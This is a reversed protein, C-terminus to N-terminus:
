RLTSIMSLQRNDFSWRVKSGTVPLFEYEDSTSGQGGAEIRGFERKAVINNWGTGDWYALQSTSAYAPASDHGHHWLIVKSFTRNAGFDITAQRPGAPQGAWNNNGGTFALGHYWQAYTRQGDVIEWPYSGGGWGPDSQLPNPFGTGTENAAINPRQAHVSSAVFVSLVAIPALAHALRRFSATQHRLVTPSSLSGSM